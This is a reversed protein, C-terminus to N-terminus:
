KHLSTYLKFTKSVPTTTDRISTTARRIITTDETAARSSIITTNTTTITTTITTTTTPTSITDKILEEATDRSPTSPSEKTGSTPTSDPAGTPRTPSSRPAVTPCSSETSAGCPRVTARKKADLTTAPSPTMAIPTCYRWWECCTAKPMDETERLKTRSGLDYTLLLRSVAEVNELPQSDIYDQHEDHGSGGHGGGGHGGGHGEDGLPVGYSNTLSAQSQGYGANGGGGGLSPPGYSNSPTVAPVGYQSSLIPPEALSLGCM